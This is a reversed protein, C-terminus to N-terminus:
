PAEPEVPREPREAGPRRVYWEMFRRIMASRDSGDRATAAGFDSWLQDDVNRVGRLKTRHQNAM